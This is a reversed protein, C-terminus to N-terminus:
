EVCRLSVTSHYAVGEVDVFARGGEVTALQLRCTGCRFCARHFTKGSRPLTVCQAPGLLQDCAACTDADVDLDIGTDVITESLSPKRLRPDASESSIEHQAAEAEASDQERLSTIISRYRRRPPACQMSRNITLWLRM